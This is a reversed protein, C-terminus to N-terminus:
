YCCKRPTISYAVPSEIFYSLVSACSRTAAENFALAQQFWGIHVSKELVTGKRVAAVWCSGSSVRGWGTSSWSGGPLAPAALLVNLLYFTETVMKFSKKPNQTVMQLLQRTTM